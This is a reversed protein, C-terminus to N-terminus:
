WLLHYDLHGTFRQFTAAKWKDDHLQLCLPLGVLLALCFLCFWPPCRAPETLEADAQPEAWSGLTRFRTSRRAEQEAPLRSRGRGRGKGGAPARERERESSYIVLIELCFWVMSDNRSNTLVYPQLFDWTDHFRVDIPVVMKSLLETTGLFTLRPGGRHRLLKVTLPIVLKHLINLYVLYFLGLNPVVCM